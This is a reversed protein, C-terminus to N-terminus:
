RIKHENRLLSQGIRRRGALFAVMALTQVVAAAIFVGPAAGAAASPDAGLQRILGLIAPAFAYTAQSIGVILAAVRITEDRAFEVQAILPPLSTANGFGAGFLVVGAVLLPIDTGGAALFALSGAVQASYGLCAVLRRDVGPRLLWGLLTRGVIAMMTILAMLLGAPQAGFAPVLLSYLHSMLGIQAFLGLAMGAALTLFKPDRWLRAGLVERTGAAPSEAAQPQQVDGDPLLGMQRPTRSFLAGAIVWLTLAMVAAIVVTAGQFGFLAISAVWLPSFIIGGVSGGNYAMGLAAPRRRVFWPSVIANLGAASLMSWGAGSLLAAVFLQWPESAAAWGCVGVALFIAAVRTATAAGLRRYVAPLNAASIAGTLYHVTIATAILALPWGRTEHIVSLFVPPGYFGIGWGFAAMTFAGSVVRWGFFTDQRM